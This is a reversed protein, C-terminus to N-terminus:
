EDLQVPGSFLLYLANAAANSEGGMFKYTNLNLPLRNAARPREQEEAQSQYLNQGAHGVKELSISSSAAKWTRITVFVPSGCGSKEKFRQRLKLEYTGAPIDTFLYTAAHKKQFDVSAPALDRRLEAEESKESSSVTSSSKESSSSPASRVTL